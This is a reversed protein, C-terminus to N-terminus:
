ARAPRLRRLEPRGLGQLAAPDHRRAPGAPGYRRTIESGLMTGVVRNINRIPLTASCRSRRGRAGPECLELLTTDDLAEDLGHDQQIQCYRGCQEPGRDPQYLIRCFDLNRAKWHDVARRMELRETRGVMEDITRFGLQAMFERVEQPSSACSTSSTSRSAPSSRACSAPGAHRRRGPLHEPPLRADHHLGARGAAGTAFGFEEAGLLAAIVVDRGTKLQGDAEVVIRSRLNNLVLM